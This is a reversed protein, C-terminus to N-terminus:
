MSIFDLRELRELAPSRRVARGVTVVVGVHELSDIAADVRERGLDRLAAYLVTRQRGRPVGAVQLVVLREAVMDLPLPDQNSQGRM